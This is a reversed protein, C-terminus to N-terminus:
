PGLKQELAVLHSLLCIVSHMLQLQAQHRASVEQAYLLM